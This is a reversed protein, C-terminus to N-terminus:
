FKSNFNQACSDCLTFVLDKGRQIGPAGCVECVTKSKMTAAETIEELGGSYDSLYIRLEGFKQKIQVALVPPTQMTKNREEVITVLGLPGQMQTGNNPDSIVGFGFPSQSKMM